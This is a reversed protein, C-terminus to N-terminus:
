VRDIARMERKRLREARRLEILVKAALDKVALWVQESRLMHPVLNDPSVPEAIQQELLTREVNYRPCYFFIHLANENSNGCFSCTVGNDHGYKYLYERFCGHGTLLQTMYFDTQGHKREVWTKVNKILRHTWRGKTTEDWRNQWENLSKQREEKQEEITLSRGLIKSTDYIRKLELAMIDPPMIGSIISVAEQSVTRFASAVRIASLRFMSIVMKAYIKHTLAQAWVPAAYLMVSQSAKALLLRRAQNPGGINAMIRALASIVRAAKECTKEIHMKYNLRADIIVGLYKLSPQTRIEHGDINLTITELKKRSSILVAETKQGALQLKSADLWNKIKQSTAVCVSQIQHLEKAVIAVAIDDAYGIIKAEKPLPLRLIGDYLINWLMPGLVSGQPVGGTVAYSKVGEETDYLLLRDSLYCRIIRLLYVPINLNELARIIHPWYASNFANKVDFTIIACYEKTGHMWRTGEIAKDAIGTLKKIADITSRKRRFGYQNSSLGDEVEELHAELRECILRELIKGITDIMCLPRYASPDGVTKNPKQLLVLRQKKWIKPFIGDTLCKTYLQTFCKLNQKLAIKLARNPIGDLGPAKANGFRTAANIVEMDTVVPIAIRDSEEPLFREEERTPQTPFLTEVVSKLLAPCTPAKGKPGRVKSMVLKYAGGWPNEDLKNCLEKFCVAKSNKIAKKLQKRKAKFNERLGDQGATGTSRQYQRRAKNCDARLQQIDNNWWYAPKRKPHQKRRIMAADCARWIHQVLLKAQQNTDESEPIDENLVLKFLDEDITNEKWGKAQVKKVRAGRRQRVSCNSVDIIIAFHDSHTYTDCM